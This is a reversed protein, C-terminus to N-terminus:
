MELGEFRPYFNQGFILERPEENVKKREREGEENKARSYPTSRNKKRETKGKWKTVREERRQLL